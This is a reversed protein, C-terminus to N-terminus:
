FTLTAATVQRATRIPRQDLQRCMSSMTDALHDLASVLHVPLPMAHKDCEAEEVQHTASFQLLQNGQTEQWSGDLHGVSGAHWAELAPTCGAPHISGACGCHNCQAMHASRSSFTHQLTAELVVQVVVQKDLPTSAHGVRQAVLARCGDLGEDVLPDLSHPPQCTNNGPAQQDQPTHSAVADLDRLLLMWGAPQM